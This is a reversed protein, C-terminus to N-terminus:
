KRKRSSSQSSEDRKRKEQRERKRADREEDIKDADNMGLIKMCFRYVVSVDIDRHHVANPSPTSFVAHNRGVRCHSGGTLYKVMSAMTPQVDPVSKSLERSDKFNAPSWDFENRLFATMLDEHFIFFQTAPNINKLIAAIKERQNRAHHRSCHFTWRLFRFSLLQGSTGGTNLFMAIASEKSCKEFEITACDDNLFTNRNSALSHLKDNFPLRCKPIFTNAKPCPTFPVGRIEAIYHSIPNSLEKLYEVCCEFKEKDNDARVLCIQYFDPIETEGKKYAEFEIEITARLFVFRAENPIPANIKECVSKIFDRVHSEKWLKYQIETTYNDRFIDITRMKEIIVAPNRSNSALFRVVDIVSGLNGDDPLNTAAKEIMTPSHQDCFFDDLLLFPSIGSYFELKIIINLRSIGLLNNNLLLLVFSRSEEELLSVMTKALVFRQKKTEFRNFAKLIHFFRWKSSSNTPAKADRLIDYYDDETTHHLEQAIRYVWPDTEKPPLVQKKKQGVSGIPQQASSRPTPETLPPSPSSFAPLSESSSPLTPASTSVPPPPSSSAFNNANVNQDSSSSPPSSNAPHIPPSSSQPPPLALSQSPQRLPSIPYSVLPQQNIDHSTTSHNAHSQSQQVNMSMLDPPRCRTACLTSSSIHVSTSSSPRGLNPASVSSIVVADDRQVVYGSDTQAGVVRTIETVQVAQCSESKRVKRKFCKDDDDDDTESDDFRKGARPPDLVEVEEWKSKPASVGVAGEVDDDIVDDIDIEAEVVDEELTEENAETQSEQSPDPSAPSAPPPPDFVRLRGPAVRRYETPPDIKINKRANKLIRRIRSKLASTVLMRRQAAAVKVQLDRKVDCLNKLIECQDASLDKLLESAEGYSKGGMKAYVRLIKDFSDSDVYEKNEITTALADHPIGLFDCFKEIEDLPRAVDLAAYMLNKFPIKGKQEGFDAMHNRHHSSKDFILNPTLFQVFEKLSIEDFLANVRNSQDLWIQMSDDDRVLAEAFLYARETDIILQKEYDERPIGFMKAVKAFDKGVKKGVKIFYPNLLVRAMLVSVNKDDLICMPKGDNRKEGSHLQIVYVYRKNNEKVALQCTSPEDNHYKEKGEDDFTMFRLGSKNRSLRDIHDAMESAQARTRVHTIERSEARDLVAGPASKEHDLLFKDVCDDEKTKTSNGYIKPLDRYEVDPIRLDDDVHIILTGNDDENDNRERSNDYDLLDRDKRPPSSPPRFGDREDRMQM